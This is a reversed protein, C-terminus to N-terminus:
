PNTCFKKNKFTVFMLVPNDFETLKNVQIELEAKKEPFKPINNKFDDSVIHDILQKAEIWMVMTSDNIQRFPYFRPGADIDNYLGSTFLPNDTSTPKCFLLRKTKKEFIGLISTTNYMSTINGMILKPTIRKEPFNENFECDLFLFDSTQYVNELGIYNQVSLLYDDVEKRSGEFSPTSYKGFNFKYSPILNAKKSLTFLTDNYREKFFLDDKFYYINAYNEFDSALQVQRNLTYFNRISKKVEGKLNFIIARYKENGTVRAIKGMILSDNLFIWTGIYENDILFLNEYKRCFAGDSNYEILDFLSQVYIKNNIGICVNTLHQFEGPARGKNGIKSLFNGKKDFLLCLQGDSILIRDDSFSSKYIGKLSIGHVNQLPVYSVKNCFDSLNLLHMNRLNRAVDIEPIRVERIQSSCSFQLLFLLILDKFCKM